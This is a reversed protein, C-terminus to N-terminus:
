MALPAPARIVMILPSASNHSEERKLATFAIAELVEIDVGEFGQNHECENIMMRMMLSKHTEEGRQERLRMIMMMM